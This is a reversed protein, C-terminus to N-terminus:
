PLAQEECHRGHWTPWPLERTQKEHQNAASCSHQNHVSPRPLANHVPHKPSRAPCSNMWGSPSPCMNQFKDELRLPLSRDVASLHLLWWETPDEQDVKLELDPVKLSGQAVQGRTVWAVPTDQNAVQSGRATAPAEGRRQGVCRWPASSSHHDFAVLSSRPLQDRWPDAWLFFPQSLSPDTEFPAPGPQNWHGKWPDKAHSQIALPWTLWPPVPPGPPLHKAWLKRAFTWWPVSSSTCVVLLSIWRLQNPIPTPTALSYRFPHFLHQIYAHDMLPYPVVAHWGPVQEVM